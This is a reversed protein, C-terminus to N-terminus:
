SFVCQLLIHGILVFNLLDYIELSPVFFQCAKINLTYTDNIMKKLRKRALSCKQIMRAVYPLNLSTIRSMFSWLMSCTVIKACFRNFILTM